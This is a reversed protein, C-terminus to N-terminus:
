SGGRDTGILYDSLQVAREASDRLDRAMKRVTQFNEATVPEFLLDNIEQQVPALQALLDRGKASVTLTVRRLDNPDPQKEVLDLKVLKAVENTVFPTSLALHDAVAKVGSLSKTELQRITILITFQIGTLGIFGGFRSRIQELRAAFALLDHVMSRFQEDSGNVVLDDRGVTLAAALVDKEM